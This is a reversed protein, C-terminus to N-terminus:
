RTPSYKSCRATSFLRPWIISATSRRGSTTLRSTPSSTFTIGAASACTPSMRSTRTPSRIGRSPTTISPSLRTSVEGTVPSGTGTFRLYPSSTTEPQTFVEPISFIRTSFTRSSDMTVRIRSLTSFAAALLGVMSRKM